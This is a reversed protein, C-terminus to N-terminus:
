NKHLKDKNKQFKFIILRGKKFVKCLLRTPKKM